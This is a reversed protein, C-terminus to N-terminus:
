SQGAMRDLIVNVAREDQEVLVFRRGMRRAALGTSGSGAFPDLVWEGDTTHTAIMIEALKEPKQCVHVKGQMIETIDRWVNTRRLFESKAPYKNNYGAYGRKEDLLPINFMRPKKIDGLTLYACEERTFLYNHSVGYARKKSWTIHNALQWKTRNEVDALYRYFPRFHPKGIGGWVYM